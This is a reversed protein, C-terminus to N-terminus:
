IYRPDFPIGNAKLMAELEERFSRRRHHEPQGDIYAIVREAASASVSFASYGDQWDFRREGIERHVWQSSVSKIERLVDSVRHTPNLRAFLHVHDDVGGVRLSVGGLTNICGGLFAHLNGIWAEQIMPARDKTSFVIHYRLSTYSM